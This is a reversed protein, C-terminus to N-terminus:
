KLIEISQLITEFDQFQWRWSLMSRTKYTDVKAVSHIQKIDLLFAEHSKAKFSKEFNLNQFQYSRVANTQLSGDELIKHVIDGNDDQKLTWFITLSHAPEIYYNLAVSHHDTHAGTGDESIETFCKIVPPIKFKIKSETLSNFYDLDKIFYSTFTSGYGEFYDGKIRSIDIESLNFDLKKYYM